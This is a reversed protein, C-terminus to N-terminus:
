WDVEEMLRMIRLRGKWCRRQGLVREEGDSEQPVASSGPPAQSGALKLCQVSKWVLTEKAVSQLRQRLLPRALLNAHRTPARLSINSREWAIVFSESYHALNGLLNNSLSLLDYPWVQGSIQMIASILIIVKKKFLRLSGLERRKGSTSSQAASHFLQECLQLHVSSRGPRSLFLGFYLVWAISLLPQCPSESININQLLLIETSMRM